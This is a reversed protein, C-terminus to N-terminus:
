KRKSPNMPVVKKTAKKSTARTNTSAVGKARSKRKTTRKETSISSAEGNLPSVQEPPPSSPKLLDKFDQKIKGLFATTLRYSGITRILAAAFPQSAGNNKLLKVEKFETDLNADQGESALAEKLWEFVIPQIDSKKLVCEVFLEYLADSAAVNSDPLLNKAKKNSSDRGTLDKTFESIWKDADLFYKIARLKRFNDNTSIRFANSFNDFIGMDPSHKRLLLSTTAEEGLPLLMGYARLRLTHLRNWWLSSQSEGILMREGQDLLAIAEDMTASYLQRLLKKWEGLTRSKRFCVAIRPPVFIVNRNRELIHQVSFLSGYDLNEARAFVLGDCALVSKIRPSTVGLWDEIRTETELPKDVAVEDVFSWQKLENDLFLAIWFCKTLRVEARRLNLVAFETKNQERSKSLIAQAENLHRNSEFFRGLNALGVSYLTHLKVKSQVEFDLLFPPLHKCLDIGLNCAATLALWHEMKVADFAHYELKSRRLLVYGIEGLTWIMNHLMSPNDANNRKWRAKTTSFSEILSDRTKGETSRRQSIEFLCKIINKAERGLHKQTFYSKINECFDSDSGSIAELSHDVKTMSPFRVPKATESLVQISISRPDLTPSREKKRGGGEITLCNKLSLVLAELQEVRNTLRKSIDDTDPQDVSLTPHQPDIRKIAAVLQSKVKEWHEGSIWSADFPSAQWLLLSNWGILVTKCAELIASEFLMSRYNKLNTGSIPRNPIGKPKAFPAFVAAMIRHHMAEILPTLHGSSCFAKFYWDGIWFHLRARMECFHHNRRRGDNKSGLPSSELVRQLAMRVDRHMWVSGGPKDFFVRAKRLESIWAASEVSRVYDNDIGNANHRYPCQFVAESCVANPHRSHRFLTLAYLFTLKREHASREYRPKLVNTAGFNYTFFQALVRTVINHFLSISPQMEATYFPDSPWEALTKAKENLHQGRLFEKWNADTEQFDKDLKADGPEVEWAAILKAKTAAREKSLPFYVIPIGARAFSEIVCHLAQFSAFRSDPKSKSFGEIETPWESPLLGSSGGFSDRGYLIVAIRKPNARYEGLVHKLHKAIIKSTREFGSSSDATNQMSEHVIPSSLPHVTVHRSQFTGYRLALGRLFDRLLADADMYDQTEMWFVRYGDRSLEDVALASARVVGGVSDLLVPRFEYESYKKKEEKEGMRELDPIRYNPLWMKAQVFPIPKTQAELPEGDPRYFHMQGKLADLITTKLQMVIADRALRKATVEDGSDGVLVRAADLPDKAEKGCNKANEVEPELFDFSKQRRPPVIHSFEYTLGGPPLSLVLRQYLEYLLLDPRSSQTVRVKDRYISDAFLANVRKVDWESFCIWYLAADKTKELWNRIMQVCRYDAGSYGVILLRKSRIGLRSNAEQTWNGLNGAGNTLYASFMRKDEDSPEEDLSLDARTDQAEGHLKVLCDDAAVTRMEPLRGRASVPLVRLSLSLNKYADELLTDFNTTLITQIRLPSSLHALIKHGLNPQKDRTIFSNFADIISSDRRNWILKQNDHPDIGAMSLFVLTERWDHLSRIGMEIIRSRYSRNADPVLEDIAFAAVYKDKVTERAFFDILRSSYNDVEDADSSKLIQPIHPYSFAMGPNMAAASFRKPVISKIFSFGGSVRDDYNIELELRKCLKAFEFKIWDRAAM